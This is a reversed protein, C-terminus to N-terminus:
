PQARHHRAARPQRRLRHRSGIRDRQGPHHRQALPAIRNTQPRALTENVSGRFVLPRSPSYRLHLGPLVNDYNDSNRVWAYRAPNNTAFATNQRYAKAETATREYRLGALATLPGRTWEGMAYGATITERVYYDASLTNQLTTGANPVFAARNAKAFDFFSYPVITPGFDMLGDLFGRKVEYAGGARSDALGFAGGAAPAVSNYQENEQDWRKPSWRHKFGTTFRFPAGALRLERSADGKLSFERNRLHRDQIQLQSFNYAAADNLDPGASRTVRPRESDGLDITGTTNAGTQWQGTVADQHNTGRALSGVLELQWPGASARGGLALSTGTDTFQRPNVVRQGRLATSTFGTIHGAAVTVPQAAAITGVNQVVFRPRANREIFENHAARLFLRATDGFKRELAASGGTRERKIDVYSFALNNPSYGTYTGNAANGSRVAWGAPESTEELAKRQARSASFQVGWERGTGFVDSFNLGARYSSQEALDNYQWVANAALVRGQTDFASKSRLNIAGGISDADQNPTASKTIEVGALQEAPYVDLSVTRGDVQNSLVSVGDLTISNLNPAAGRITIDRDEGRQRVTSIGPLRKLAEAANVDPFNGIADAAVVNRLNIAARQENIARAQGERAGEVVFASLQVVAPQLQAAVRTVGAAPVTTSVTTAAYGVYAVAVNVAGAPVERLEFSGDRDVVASLDTGTVTAVAGVLHAGTQADTVRGLVTGTGGAEPRRAPAARVPSEATSTGQGPAGAPRNITLTGTGPDQQASLDTGALLRRAAELATFEGQVPPTRLGTTMETAFLVEVGTQLALRKLSSEATDAPLTIRHRAPAAATSATALLLSLFAHALWAPLIRVNTM